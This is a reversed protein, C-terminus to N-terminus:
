FFGYGHRHNKMKEFQELLQQRQEPSLTQLFADAHDLALNMVVESEQHHQAIAQKVRVKDIKGHQIQEKALEHLQQKSSKVEKAKAMVQAVSEKLAAEQEPNLSLESTMKEVFRGVREEPSKHWWGAFATASLSLSLLVVLFLSVSPKKAAILATM